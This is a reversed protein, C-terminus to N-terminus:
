LARIQLIPNNTRKEKLAYNKHTLFKIIDASVNKINKEIFIITKSKITKLTTIHRINKAINNVKAFGSFTITINIRLCIYYTTSLINNCLSSM